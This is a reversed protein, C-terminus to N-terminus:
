DNNGELSKPPIEPTETKKPSALAPNNESVIKQIETFTHGQDGIVELAKMRYIQDESQLDKHDGFLLIGLFTLIFVLFLAGIIFMLFIIATMNGTLVILIFTGLLYPAIFLISSFVSSIRIQKVMESASKIPDFTPKM